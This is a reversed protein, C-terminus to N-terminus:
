WFSKKIYAEYEDLESESYLYERYKTEEKQVKKRKFIDFLGM